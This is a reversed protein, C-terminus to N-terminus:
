RTCRGAQVDLWDYPSAESYARPGGRAIGTATTDARLPLDFKGGEADAAEAIEDRATQADALVDASQQDSPDWGRKRYLSPVVLAALWGLVVEPVPDEFPAAYRKRLQGNIRSTEIKLRSEVFAVWPARNSEDLHLGDVLHDPAITRAKLGDVDLYSGELAM